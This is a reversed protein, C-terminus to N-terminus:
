KKVAGVKILKGNGLDKKGKEPVVVAKAPAKQPVAKQMIVGHRGEDRDNDRKELIVGVKVHGGERREHDGIGYYRKHSEVPYITQWYGERVLERRTVDQWYGSAVTYAERRYEIVNGWADIVPVDRYRIETTPVWVREIVDRYVPAVWVREVPQAVAVPVVPCTIVPTIYGNGITLGLHNGHRGEIDLTLAFDGAKAPAAAAMMGALGMVAVAKMMENRM